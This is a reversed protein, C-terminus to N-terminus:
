SRERLRLGSEGFIFCIRDSVFQLERELWRGYTESTGEGTGEWRSGVSRVQWSRSLPPHYICRYVPVVRVAPENSGSM